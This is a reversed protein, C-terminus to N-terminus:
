GNVIREVIYEAANDLRSEAKSLLEAKKLDTERAIEEMEAKAKEQALESKEKLEARVRSELQNLAARGEEGAKEVARKANALAEAKQKEVAEEAQCIIEIAGLSM